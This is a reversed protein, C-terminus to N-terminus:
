KEIEIRKYYIQELEKYNKEVTDEIFKDLNEIEEDFIQDILENIENSGKMAEILEELPIFKNFDNKYIEWWGNKQEEIAFRICDIIEKEILNKRNQEM